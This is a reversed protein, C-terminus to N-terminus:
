REGLTEERIGREPDTDGKGQPVTRGQERRDRLSRSQAARSPQPLTPTPTGLVAPGKNGLLGAGRRGGLVCMTGRQSNKGTQSGGLGPWPQSATVVARGEAAPSVSDPPPSIVQPHPDMPSGVKPCCPRGVKCLRVGLGRDGGECSGLPQRCMDKGMAKDVSGGQGGPHQGCQRSSGLCCAAREMARVVGAEACSPCQGLM